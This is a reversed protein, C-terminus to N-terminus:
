RIMLAPATSGAPFDTKDADFELLCDVSVMSSLMGSGQKVLAVAVPGSESHEIRARVFHTRGVPKKYDSELVVPIRPQAPMPHGLLKRIAPRVFLEFSVLSSAPNGPLGFVLQGNDRVGFALPKGPKIAVKWFDLNIGVAEMAEKVYDFDGVSVGGSTLLIDYDALSRLARVTSELSDEAIGADVALGGAAQVQAALTISNSSILQGAKPETGLPVLENGTALIAVTPRRTVDVTAIGQSALMALEGPGLVAGSRLITADVQVDEGARRIHRGLQPTETFTAIGGTETVVERMVVTDAGKPVPAGTMIKMCSGVALEATPADGAPIVGAVPLAGPVESARIVYGDMASNDWAPLQRIAKQDERLVRGQSDRLGLSEEPLRKAHSLIRTVAEEPSQM